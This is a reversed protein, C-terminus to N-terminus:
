IHILSLIPCKVFCTIYYDDLINRDFLTNYLESIQKFAESNIITKDSVGLHPFVIIKNSQKNGIGKIYHNKENIVQYACDECYRGGM